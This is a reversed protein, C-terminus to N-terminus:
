FFAKYQDMNNQENKKPVVRVKAEGLQAKLEAAKEPDRTKYYNYDLVLLERKLRDRRQAKAAGSIQKQLARRKSLYEEKQVVQEQNPGKAKSDGVQSPDPKERTFQTVGEKDVWRYM